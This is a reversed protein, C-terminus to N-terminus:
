SANCALAGTDLAGSFPKMPVTNWWGTVASFEPGTVREAYANASPFAKAANGGYNITFWNWGGPGTASTAPGYQEIPQFTTGTRPNVLYGPQIWEQTVMASTAAARGIATFTPPTFGLLSPVIPAVKACTAIEIQAPVYDMKVTAPTGPNNIVWAGGDQEVDNVAASRPQVRVVNYSFACDGGSAQGCNAQLQKVLATADAQAQSATYQSTRNVLQVDATYRAVARMYEKKLADFTAQCGGAACGPDGYAAAQMGSLLSRIRWEEVAAAYVLALQQNWTQTQVSLAASAAADAANQARVQWRLVEGYQMAAFALVLAGAIGMSWIPLTQGRSRSTLFM